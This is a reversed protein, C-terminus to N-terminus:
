TGIPPDLPALHVALTRDAILKPKTNVKTANHCSILRLKSIQPHSITNKMIGSTIAPHSNGLRLHSFLRVAYLTSHPTPTTAFRMIIIIALRTPNATPTSPNFLIIAPM